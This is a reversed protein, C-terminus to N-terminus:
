RPAAAALLAAVRPELLEAVRANGEATYHGEAYPLRIAGPALFMRAHADEPLARFAPVLDAYAFGREVLMRGIALRWDDDGGPVRDERVPLYVLLLAAGRARALARLEEFVRLSLRALEDAGIAAPAPRLRRGLERALFVSRLEEFLRANQALWPLRLAARPVPVNDLVLADGHLRLVPKAYGLFEPRAMRAFDERIFAFVHLAHEREAAQRRYWLYSQDIGYGGQGLNWLELEPRRAELQACWSEADGVGYGLTFSDGSCFGRRRGPPPAPALERAGRMGLSNTALGVGPAYLDPERMGARAVWGLEADYVTHRREALPARALLAFRGAFVVISALGEVLVFLLLTRALFGLVRV